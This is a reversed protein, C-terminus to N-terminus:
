RISVVVAVVVGWMMSGVVTCTGRRGINSALINGISCCSCAAVGRRGAAVISDAINGVEVGVMVRSKSVAM